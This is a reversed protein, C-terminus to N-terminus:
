FIWQIMSWTLSDTSYLVTGSSGVIVFQDGYVVDYLSPDTNFTLSSLSINEWTIGDNSSLIVKYDGNPASNGGVIVYPVDTDPLATNVESVFDSNDYSEDSTCGFIILSSTIILFWFLQFYKSCM